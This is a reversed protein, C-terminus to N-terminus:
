WQELLMSRWTFYLNNIFEYSSCIHVMAELFQRNIDCNDLAYQAYSTIQNM